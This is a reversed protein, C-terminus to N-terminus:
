NEEVKPDGFLRTLEKLNKTEKDEKFNNSNKLENLLSKNKEELNQSNLSNKLKSFKKLNALDKNFEDDLNSNNFSDNNRQLDKNELNQTKYYNKNLNDEKKISLDKNFSEAATNSNQNITKSDKNQLNQENELKSIKIRSDKNFTKRLIEMIVKSSKRLFESDSEDGFSTIFLTNDKFDNFKVSRKFCEGLEYNRDYINALYEDYPTKTTKIESILDKKDKELNKSDKLINDQEKNSVENMIDDISKLGMSEIMLFLTMAMTFGNDSGMNLMTKAESLVRFFREYMFVNFKPDKSLFKDKLNLTLQDIISDAEYSSLEDLISVVGERDRKLVINLIEDIKVPDVLGLMSAVEKANVSGNTFSISQDLLTISDRLSGEGSRAIIKLAEDEFTINEKNLINALHNIVLNQPIPKFRFHQTRSLITAPLKLPDTTALIFKIHELPEELTKLFANFAEKTLMHVEDIIFVKYRSISPYTKTREILERIDDIKRRSAADMEIIDIHANENAMKCSDCVECPHSTPGNKCLMSKALIRASSTKGSGRLGSFLYANALRKSDLANSLSRSVAEQGILEDFNKPRYKLSLVQYM